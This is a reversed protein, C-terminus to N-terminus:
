RKFFIFRWKFTARMHNDCDQSLKGEPPLIHLSLITGKKLCPGTHTLPKSPNVQESERSLKPNIATFKCYIINETEASLGGFEDVYSGSTMTWEQPINRWNSNLTRRTKLHGQKKTKRMTSPTRRLPLRRTSEVHHFDHYAWSGGKRFHCWDSGM